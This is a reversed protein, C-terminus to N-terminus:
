SYAGAQRKWATVDFTLITEGDEHTTEIDWGLAELVLRVKLLHKSGDLLEQDSYRGTLNPISLEGPVRLRFGRGTSEFAMSTGPGLEAGLEEVLLATRVHDTRLEISDGSVACDTRQEALTRIDIDSVDGGTKVVAFLESFEGVLQKLGDVMEAETQRAETFSRKMDAWTDALSALAERVAAADTQVEDDVESPPEEGPQVEMGLLSSLEVLSERGSAEADFGGEMQSAVAIQIQTRNRFNHDYIGYLHEIAERVNKVLMRQRTLDTINRSIGVLGIVRGSPDTVRHKSATVHIKEAAANEIWEPKREIGRHGEIVAMNDRYLEMATEPLFTDFESAGVLDAPELDHLDAKAQNVRVFRAHRDFIYILDDFENMLTDYARDEVSVHTGIGGASSTVPVTAGIHLSELREEFHGMDETHLFVDAGSLMAQAVKEPRDGVYMVGRVPDAAAAAEVATIAHEGAEVVVYAPPTATAELEAVDSPDLTSVGATVRTCVSRYTSLYDVAGPVIGVHSDALSQETM